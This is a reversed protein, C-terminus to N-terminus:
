GPALGLPGFVSSPLESAQCGLSRWVWMRTAAGGRTACSAVVKHQGKRRRSLALTEPLTFDGAIGLVLNELCNRGIDYAV